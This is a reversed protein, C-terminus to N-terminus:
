IIEELQLIVKVQKALDEISGNNDLIYDFKDRYDDLDTESQHNFKPNEKDYNRDIRITLGGRDKIAQFENKFRLDPIIWKPYEPESEPTFGKNDPDNYTPIFGTVISKYDSFFANLHASPHLNNRLAQTGVLQLCERVTMQHVLEYYRFQLEGPNIHTIGVRDFPQNNPNKLLEDYSEYTGIFIQQVNFTNWEQPLFSNKVEEKELDERPIGTLLSVIQKLKDAFRHTQYPLNPIFAFHQLYDVIGTTMPMRNTDPDITNNIPVIFWKPDTAEIVLCRILKAVLDKGSESKGSIGWLNKNKEM